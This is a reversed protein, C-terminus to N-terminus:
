QRRRASHRLPAASIGQASVRLDPCWVWRHYRTRTIKLEKTDLTSEQDNIEKPHLRKKNLVGLGSSLKLFDNGM